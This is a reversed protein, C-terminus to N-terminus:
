SPIVDRMRSVKKISKERDEIFTYPAYESYMDPSNLIVPRVGPSRPLVVCFGGSPKTGPGSASKGGYKVFLRAFVGLILQTKQKM